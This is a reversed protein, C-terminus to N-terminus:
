LWWHPSGSHCSSYLGHVCNYLIFWWWEGECVVGITVANLCAEETTVIMLWMWKTMVTRGTIQVDLDTDLGRTAETITQFISYSIATSYCAYYQSSRKTKTHLYQLLMYDTYLSISICWTLDGSKRQMSSRLCSRIALPGTANQNALHRPCIHVRTNSRMRIRSNWYQV